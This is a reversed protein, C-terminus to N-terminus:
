RSGGGTRAARRRALAERSVAVDDFPVSQSGIVQYQEHGKGAVVVVDGARAGEVASDIARRRDTDRTWPTAVQTVGAVIDDVIREPDESRPNDSTVVIADSLRAAMAGMLPRKTRDRDGGCGFVTVLRGTVMPRVAELVNRLADDTHAYDVIVTVDDDPDSVVQLRGPVATLAALGGTIAEAPVGIAVSAAIAGLLNSLNFPGTLRSRIPIRGAPTVADFTLGAFSPVVGVPHVTAAPDIGFTVVGPLEAALRRGYVDDLNVVAPAGAPLLDFLRRKAAFYQAMDGHFDLHDQTLNTFIAAAFRTGDVRRLALAHSSVEMSCARAGAEVMRRFLAQLDLSEPTTRPADYLAAGVSYHVTGVLGCPLGAQELIARVLYSTTTKGNTGTTGVVTLAQSPHGHFWDALVALALRDDTVRIWPVATGAPAPSSAVIAVAGRTMADPAYAAGDARTGQVAVFVTGPVVQRSDYALATVAAGPLDGSVSVAPSLRGAELAAVLDRVSTM